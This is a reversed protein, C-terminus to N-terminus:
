PESREGVFRLRHPPGRLPRFDRERPTPITSHLVGSALGISNSQGPLLTTLPSDPSMVPIRSTIPENDSWQESIEGCPSGKCDWSTPGTPWGSRLSGRGGCVAAQSLSLTAVPKSMVAKKLSVVPSAVKIVACARPHWSSLTSSGQGLTVLHCYRRLRTTPLAFRVIGEVM